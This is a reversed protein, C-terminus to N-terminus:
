RDGMGFTAEGAAIVRHRLAEDIVAACAEDVDTLVIPGATIRPIRVSAGRVNGAQGVRAPLDKTQHGVRLAEDIRGLM